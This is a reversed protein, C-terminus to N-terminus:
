QDTCNEKAMQTRPADGNPLVPRLEERHDRLYSLLWQKKEKGRKSDGVGSSKDDSLAGPLIWSARRYIAQWTKKVASLSITLEDALQEDTLGRLGALLLRQEGPRFFIRPRRNAFFLSARNGIQPLSTERTAGLLFPNQFYNADFPSFGDVYSASLPDWVAM